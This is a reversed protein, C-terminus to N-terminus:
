RNRNKAAKTTKTAQNQKEVISELTENELGVQQSENIHLNLKTNNTELENVM